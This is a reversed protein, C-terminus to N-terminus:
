CSKIDFCVNDVRTLDAVALVDSQNFQQADIQCWIIALQIQSLILACHEQIILAGCDVADDFCEVCSAHRHEDHDVMM